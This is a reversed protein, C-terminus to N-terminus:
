RCTFFFFGHMRPAFADNLAAAVFYALLYLCHVVLIGIAVGPRALSHIEYLLKALIRHLDHRVGKKFRRAVSSCARFVLRPREGCPHAPACTLDARRSGLFARSVPCRPVYTAAVASRLSTCCGRVLRRLQATLSGGITQPRGEQVGLRGPRVWGLTRPWNPVSPRTIRAVMPYDNPLGM